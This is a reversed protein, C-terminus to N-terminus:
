KSVLLIRETKAEDSKEETKAEDKVETEPEGEFSMLASPSLPEDAAKNNAATALPRPAQGLM